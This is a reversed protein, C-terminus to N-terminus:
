FQVVLQIINPHPFREVTVHQLLDTQFARQMSGTLLMLQIIEVSAHSGCFRM